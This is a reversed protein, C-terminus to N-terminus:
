LTLQFLAFSLSSMPKQEVRQHQILGRGLLLAAGPAISIFTPCGGQLSGGRRWSMSRQCLVPQGASHVSVQHLQLPIHLLSGLTPTDQGPLFQQEAVRLLEQFQQPVWDGDWPSGM